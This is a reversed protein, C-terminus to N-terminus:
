RNLRPGTRERWRHLVSAVCCALGAFAFGVGWLFAIDLLWWLQRHKCAQIQEPTLGGGSIVASFVRLTLVAMVAVSMGFYVVSVSVILPTLRPSHQRYVASAGVGALLFLIPVGAWFIPLFYRGLLRPDAELLPFGHAFREILAFDIM